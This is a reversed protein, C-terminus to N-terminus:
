TFRKVWSEIHYYEKIEEEIPAFPLDLWAKLGAMDDRGLLFINDPLYFDSQAIVRNNTILKKGFFIHEMVRLSFGTQISQYIDLLCRSQMVWHLYERYATWEWTVKWGPAEEPCCEAATLGIQFKVNLGMTSLDHHLARLLPMRDKPVGLFLVDYRKEGADAYLGPPPPAYFTSNFRLGLAECDELQFSYVKHAQKIRELAECDPAYRPCRAPDWLFYYTEKGRLAPHFLWHEGLGNILIVKGFWDLLGPASLAHEPATIMIHENNGWPYCYAGANAALILTKTGTDDM